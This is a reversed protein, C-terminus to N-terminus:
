LGYKETRHEELWQRVTDDSPAATSGAGLGVLESVPKGRKMQSGPAEALGAADVADLLRRALSVQLRAPWHRVQEWVAALEHNQTTSM